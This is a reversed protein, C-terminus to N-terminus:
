SLHPSFVVLDCQFIGKVGKEMVHLKELRKVIKALYEKALADHKVSNRRSCEPRDILWAM